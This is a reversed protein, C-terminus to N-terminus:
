VLTASPSVQRPYLDKISRIRNGMEYPYMTTSIGSKEKIADSIDQFIDSLSCEVLDERIYQEGM